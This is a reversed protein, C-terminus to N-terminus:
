TAEKMSQRADVEGLEIANGTEITKGTETALMMDMDTVAGENTELTATMNEM